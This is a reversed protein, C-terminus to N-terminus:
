RSKNRGTLAELSNDVEVGLYKVTQVVDIEQGWINLCLNDGATRHKQHKPKTCILLSQTRLVNPSLKSGQDM